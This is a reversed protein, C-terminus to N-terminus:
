FEANSPSWVWVAKIRNPLSATQSCKRPILSQPQLASTCLCILSKRMTIITILPLPNLFHAIFHVHLTDGYSCSVLSKKMDVMENIDRVKVKLWEFMKGTYSNTELLMLSGDQTLICSCMELKRCAPTDWGKEIWLGWGRGGMWRWGWLRRGFEIVASQSHETWPSLSKVGAAAWTAWWFGWGQTGLSGGTWCMLWCIWWGRLHAPAAPELGDVSVGGAPRGWHFVYSSSTEGGPM